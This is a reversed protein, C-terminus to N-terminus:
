RVRTHESLQYWRSGYSSATPLVSTPAAASWVRAMWLLLGALSLGWEWICMNRHTPNILVFPMYATFSVLAISFTCTQLCYVVFKEWLVSVFHKPLSLCSITQGNDVFFHSLLFSYLYNINTLPGSFSFIWSILYLLFHCCFRKIYAFLRRNGIPSSHIPLANKTHRRLDLTALLPCNFLNLEGREGSSIKLSYHLSFIIDWLTFLLINCFYFLFCRFIGPLGARM